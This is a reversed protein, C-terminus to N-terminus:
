IELKLSAADLTTAEREAKTIGEEVEIQKDLYGQALHM